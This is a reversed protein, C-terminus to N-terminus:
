EKQSFDQCCVKFLVTAVEAANGCYRTVYAKIINESIGELPLFYEQMSRPQQQMSSPEKSEIFTYVNKDSNFLAERGNRSAPM